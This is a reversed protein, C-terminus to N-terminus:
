KELLEEKEENGLDHVLQCLDYRIKSVGHFKGENIAEETALKKAEDYPMNNERMFRLTKKMVTTPHAKPLPCGNHEELQKNM